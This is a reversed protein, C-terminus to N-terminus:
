GHPSHRQGASSSLVWRTPWHKPDRGSSPSQPTDIDAGATLSLASPTPADDRWELVLMRHCDSCELTGKERTQFERGCLCSFTYVSYLNM